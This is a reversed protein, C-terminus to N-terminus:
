KYLSAEQPRQHEALPRVMLLSYWVQQLAGSTQTVTLPPTAYDSLTLPVSAAQNVVLNVQLPAVSSINPCFYSLCASAPSAPAKTASGLSPCTPSQHGVPSPYLKWGSSQPSNAWAETNGGIVYLSSNCSVVTAFTRGEPLDTLNYWSGCGAELVRVTKFVEPPGVTPDYKLNYGGAAVLIGNHTGWSPSSVAAPLRPALLWSDAYPDYQAVTVSTLGTMSPDINLYFQCDAVTGLYGYKTAPMSGDDPPPSALIWDASAPQFRSTQRVYTTTSFARTFAFLSNAMVSGTFDWNGISDTSPVGFPSVSSLLQWADTAPDYQYTSTSATVNNVGLTLYIKNGIVGVVPSVLQSPIRSTKTEWRNEGTRFVEVTDLPYANQGGFVYIDNNYCVASAGSRATSMSAVPVWAPSNVSAVLFVHLAILAIQFLFGCPVSCTM